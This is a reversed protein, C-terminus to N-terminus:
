RPCLSSVLELLNVEAKALKRSAASMRSLLSVAECAAPLRRYVSRSSPGSKRDKAAAYITIRQALAASIVAWYEADRYLKFRTGPKYERVLAAPSKEVIWRSYHRYVRAKGLKIKKRRLASSIRPYVANLSIEEIADAYRSFVEHLCEARHLERAKWNNCHKKM